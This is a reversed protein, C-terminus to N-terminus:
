RRAQQPTLASRGGILPRPDGVGENDSNNFDALDALGVTRCGDRFARQIPILEKDKFRTIPVPGSSGDTSRSLGPGNRPRPFVARGAGDGNRIESRWGNM